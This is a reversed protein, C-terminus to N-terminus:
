AGASKVGARFNQQNAGFDFIVRSGIGLRRFEWDPGATQVTPTDVGNLFAAEIVGVGTVAPFLLYWATTTGAVTVATSTGIPTFTLTKNLYRSMVPKARGKWMNINPQKSASAGGYVLGIAAPDVLENATLWLEPPYLLVPKMDDFGLPQGNPDVQNDYAQKALQLSSSSLASTGGSILNIGSSKQLPPPTPASSRWFSGGDDANVNALNLFTGWFYNNFGTGAGWGLKQPTTTLISQDDNIIPKRGIFLYRGFQDAQNAFAQDSLVADELEGSEPVPKVMTDGLLNISKSPKFDNMNRLPAIERWAQEIFLYGVLMYKNQVNSTINGVSVTSMGDSARIGPHSRPMYGYGTGARLVEEMNGDTIRDGGRYGNLRACTVFLQQLGLGGRFLTHAAQQVQDPYQRRFEAQVQKQKWEPIRRSKTEDDVYYSDDDIRMIDPRAQFMACELVEATLGPATPIHFHGGAVMGAQPRAARLAILEAAEQTLGAEIAHTVFDVKKGDITVEGLQHERGIAEIRAVRKRETAAVSRMDALIQDRPSGKRAALKKKGAGAKAKKEPEDEAETENEDEAETESEEGMCKTLAAKAEDESMKEIDEASYKAAEAHGSAKATKLMAKFMRSVGVKSGLVTVSTDGDAGLAVFSTESVETERSIELPGTVTQGNVETEEGAELYESRVPDGGISLEWEFGNDAPTTIANVHEAEGSFVGAVHIGDKDVWVKDTHGAVKDPDHSRLMPLQKGRFRVGKLDVVIPLGWGRPVMPAGTYAVGEFRRLKTKGDAEEAAELKVVKGCFLRLPAKSPM